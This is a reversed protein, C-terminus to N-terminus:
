QVIDLHFQLLWFQVCRAGRLALTLKWLKLKIESHEFEADDTLTEYYIKSIWFDNTGM